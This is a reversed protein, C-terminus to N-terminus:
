VGQIYVAFNHPVMVAEYQCFQINSTVAYKKEIMKMRLWLIIFLEYANKLHTNRGNEGVGYMYCMDQCAKVM